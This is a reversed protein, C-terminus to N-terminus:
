LYTTAAAGLVVGWAWGCRRIVGVVVFVLVLAEHCRPVAWCEGWSGVVVISSGDGEGLGTLWQECPECTSAASLLLYWTGAPALVAPLVVMVVVVPVLLHCLV